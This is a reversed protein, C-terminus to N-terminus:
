QPKNHYPPQLGPNHESGWCVIGSDDLACSSLRGAAVQTPNSLLPVDTQGFSNSGGCKVGEADFLCAHYDGMDFVEVQGVPTFSPYGSTCVLGSDNIECYNPPLEGDAVDLLTPNAGEVDPSERGWCTSGHDDLACATYNGVRIATPNSLEPVSLVNYRDVGWCVVGSDDLACSFDRGAAIDRPSSLEPVDLEGNLNWCVVGTNDIACTHTGSTSIRAANLLPKRPMTSTYQTGDWCRAGIDDLVCINSGTMSLAHLEGHIPEILGARGWCQLGEDALACAATEGLSFTRVNTLPPADLQGGSNHGWCVVDDEDLACTFNGGAAIATPATLEPVETQHYSNSGWCVVGTSDLACAHSYGVSIQTPRVLEPVSTQGASDWGWCTVGADHLACSFRNGVAIQTPNQLNPVITEGEYDSGWCIAGVTDDLACIHSPSNAVAYAGTLVPPEGGVAYNCLVEGAAIGCIRDYWVSLASPAMIAPAAKKGWCEVSASELICAVLDGVALSPESLTRVALEPSAWVQYEETEDPVVTFYYTADSDLSYGLQVLTGSTEALLEDSETVNGTTNYYVRYSEVHRMPPWTLVISDHTPIAQVVPTRSVVIAEKTASVDPYNNDVITLTVAGGADSTAGLEVEAGDATTNITLLGEPDDLTWSYDAADNSWKTAASWTVPEGVPVYTDGTIIIEPTVDDFGEASFSGTIRSYPGTAANGRISIEIDHLGARAPSAYYLVYIGDAFRELQNFVGEFVEIDTFDEAPYVNAPGAIARLAELNVDTGVPIAYVSKSGVAEIVEDQTFRQSTDDGDTVVIMSGYSVHSLTFSDSWRGVGTIIAGRLNTSSGGRTITAIADALQEADSTFDAVLTVDGDFTYVAVQQHEALLSEGTVPDRIIATATEKVQEIQAASISGSVDLALVTYFTYPISEVPELDVFSELATVERDDELVLFNEVSLGMVPAGTDSEIVRFASSIISPAQTRLGYDLFAFTRPQCTLAINSVDASNITGSADALECSLSSPVEVIVVSYQEGDALETAFEFTSAAAPIEIPAGGNLSLQVGGTDVGSAQGGVTYLV